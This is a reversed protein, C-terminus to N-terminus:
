VRKLSAVAVTVQRKAKAAWGASGHSISAIGDPPPQPWQCYRSRAIRSPGVSAWRQATVRSRAAAQGIPRHLARVRRAGEGRLETRHHRRWTTQRDAAMIDCVTEVVAAHEPIDLVVGQAFSLPISLGLRPVPDETGFLFAELFAVRESKQPLEPVRKPSRGFSTTRGDGFGCDIIEISPGLPHQIGPAQVARELVSQRLSM